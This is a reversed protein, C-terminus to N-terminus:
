GNYNYGGYVSINSQYEDIKRVITEGTLDTSNHITYYFSPSYVAASGDKGGVQKVLKLTSSIFDNTQGLDTVTEAKNRDGLIALSGEKSGMINAGTWLKKPKWESNFYGSSGSMAMEAGSMETDQYGYSGFGPFVSSAKTNFLDSLPDSIAHSINMGGFGTIKFLAEAIKFLVGLLLLANKLNESWMDTFWVLADMVEPTFISNIDEIIQPLGEILVKVFDMASSILFPLVESIKPLITSIMDMFMPLLKAVLDIISPLLSLLPPLAKVIIIMLSQLIAVGFEGLVGLLTTMSPAMQTFADKLSDWIQVLIPGNESAIQSFFQSFLEVLQEIYPSVATVVQTIVTGISNFINGITTFFGSLGGEAGELGGMMSQFVGVINAVLLALGTLGDTNGSLAATVGNIIAALPSWNNFFEILAPM